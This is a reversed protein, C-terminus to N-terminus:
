IQIKFCFDKKYKKIQVPLLQFFVRVIIVQIGGFPKDNEGIAKLIENVYDLTINDLMSIEDIALMECCLLTKYLVPNKCIKQELYRLGIIKYFDSCNYCKILFYKQPLLFKIFCTKYLQILNFHSIKILSLLISFM